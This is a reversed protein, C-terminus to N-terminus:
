ERGRHKKYVQIDKVVWSVNGRGGSFSGERVGDVDETNRQSRGQGKGFVDWTTYKIKHRSKLM